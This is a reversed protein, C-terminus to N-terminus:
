QTGKENQSNHKALRTERKNLNALEKNSIGVVDSYAKWRAIESLAEKENGQKDLILSLRDIPYKVTRWASAKTGMADLAMIRDIADRYQAIATIPSDKESIHAAKIIKDIERDADMWPAVVKWNFDGKEIKLVCGYTKGQISLLQQFFNQGGTIAVITAGTEGGRDIHSALMNDGAPIYGLKQGMKNLVAIAKNDYPNDPERSLWVREGSRCNKLLSQRDSGDENRHTVGALKTKFEM